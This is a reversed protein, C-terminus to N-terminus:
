VKAEELKAARKVDEYIYKYCCAQIKEREKEAHRSNAPEYRTTIETSHLNLTAKAIIEERSTLTHIHTVLPFPHHQYNCKARFQRVYISSPSDLIVTESTIRFVLHAHRSHLSEVTSLFITQTIACIIDGRQKSGASCLDTLFEFSFILFLDPCM